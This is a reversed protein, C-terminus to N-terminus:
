HKPKLNRTYQQHSHSAKLRAQCDPLSMCVTDLSLPSESFQNFLSSVYLGCMPEPAISLQIQLQRGHTVNM